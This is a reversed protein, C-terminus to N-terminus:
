EAESVQKVVGEPLGYDNGKDLLYYDGIILGDDIAAQDNLYKGSVDVNGGGGGSAKVANVHWQLHVTMYGGTSEIVPTWFGNSIPGRENVGFDNM